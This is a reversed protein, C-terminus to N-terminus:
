ASDESLYQQFNSLLVPTGKEDQNFRLKCPCMYFRQVQITYFIDRGHSSHCIINQTFYMCVCVCMCMNVIKTTLYAIQIKVRELNLYQYSNM